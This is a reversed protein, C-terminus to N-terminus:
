RRKNFCTNHIDAAYSLLRIKCGAVRAAARALPYGKEVCSVGEYSDVLFLFHPIFM